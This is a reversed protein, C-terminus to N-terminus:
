DKKFAITFLVFGAVDILVSMIIWFIFGRGAYDGNLWGKLTDFVSKLKETKSIKNNFTPDKAHEAIVPYAQHTINTTFLITKEDSLRNNTIDNKVKKTNNLLKQIESKTNKDLELRKEFERKQIGMQNDIADDIATLFKIGPKPQIILKWNGNPDVATEIESCIAKCRKGFGEKDPDQYENALKGKLANVQEQKNNWVRKIHEGDRLDQLKIEVETLDKQATEKATQYIFLSHTNTPLSFCLWFMLLLAIGSFLRPRRQDYDLDNKTNLSDYIYKTGLSSLVLFALALIWLLIKNWGLLLYFSEVTLVGSIVSMAIWGLIAGIKLFNNNGM